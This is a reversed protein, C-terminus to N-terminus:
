PLQIAVGDNRSVLNRYIQQTNVTQSIFRVSGDALAFQAGGPHFSGFSLDSEHQLNATTPAVNPTPPRNIPFLVDGLRLHSGMFTTRCGGDNNGGSWLPLNPAQFFTATVNQSTRIEGVMVTNSTGDIIDPIRVLFSLDNNNDHLLIGNQHQGRFSGTACSDLFAITNTPSLINGANGVYHSIGYNDDDRVLINSPCLYSDITTQTFPRNNNPTNADNRWPQHSANIPGGGNTASAWQDINPHRGTKIIPVPKPSGQSTVTGHNSPFTKNFNATVKDYTSTQEM